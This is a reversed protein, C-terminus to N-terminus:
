RVSFNSSASISNLSAGGSTMSFGGSSSSAYGEQRPMNLLPLLDPLPADFSLVGIARRISPRLKHDQHTCWLGVVMLREMLREDFENNLRQDAAELCAGREYLERVWEILNIKNPPEAYNIPKRGCALELAVVGFSYVDSEKRAKGTKEYEPGLYGKTGALVTTVGTFHHDVLRALGFDGLKANFEQDLMVNSPKIDRHVVCKEWEDHLYLLASALGVAIKHREPWGLLRNPDYLHKDLSGNPMYQYVLLFEGDEHCYGILQVLNRHRLQSFLTVESMYEKKGQMSGKSIKKIAVQLSNMDPLVGRYVAGFGGEGLKGQEAFNSTANLLEQFSFSRPGRGQDFLIDMSLLDDDAGRRRRTRWQWLGFWVLGIACLIIGVGIVVGLLLRSGHTEPAPAPSRTQLETSNFDWSLIVHAEASAGTTASFGFVVEEPLYKRLDIVTSTNWSRGDVSPYVSTYSLLVTLNMSDGDYTVTGLLINSANTISFNVLNAFAISKVSYVDIGIHDYRGPPDFYNSFSDFEVAVVQHASGNFLGLDEGGSNDPIPSEYKPALFFAIGDGTSNIDPFKFIKFSFHTTFSTLDGSVSDWLRLPDRYLARGAAYNVNDTRSNTTLQLGANTPSISGNLYLNNADEIGQSGTFNFSFNLSTALPFSGWFLLLFWRFCFLNAM